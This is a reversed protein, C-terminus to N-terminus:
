HKFLAIFQERILLRGGYNFVIDFLHIILMYIAIGLVALLLFSVPSIDIYIYTKVLFIVFVMLLTGLLPLMILKIPKKYNSKIINLVKYVAVFNFTLAYSTVALSSGLIGWRVTFPYILIALQILQAAAIKTVIEPKGVAMFVVGTTAGIARLMGYLALVQMAPVAPMWRESLFIKTFEPALIFILGAIPICLLATFQLVKLYAEKLKPLKDQLKSYAPFTVRAILHSIETAPANSFRYAIQYFGLAAIGVFKGVFIDDGQILLFTLITSGLVWKGFTFLEKFKSIDIKIKPRYPHIAYSLLLTVLGEALLGFILAWVNRLILALAISVTVNVFVSSFLYIFQKHFELEKQFYVTGINVLGNLLPLLAIIRIISTVRPSAFFIAIFPAAIFLIIFLIFGRIFQVTWATDLYSEVNDKKQILAKDIGTQSFTRLVAISLLAIGMLGFDGPVLLRAIIITRILSVIRSVVRLSFIWVGGRAVKQSLTGETSFFGFFKDKLSHLRNNM